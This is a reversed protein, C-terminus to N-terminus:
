VVSHSAMGIARAQPRSENMSVAKKLAAVYLLERLVKRADLFPRRLDM